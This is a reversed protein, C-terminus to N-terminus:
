RIARLYQLLWRWREGVERVEVVGEVQSGGGELPTSAERILLSVM